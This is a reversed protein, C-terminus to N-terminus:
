VAIRSADSSASPVLRRFTTIELDEFDWVYIHVIDLSFARIDM